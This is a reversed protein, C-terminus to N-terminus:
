SRWTRVKRRGFTISVFGIGGAAILTQLVAFWVWSRDLMWLMLGLVLCGTLWFLLLEKWLGRKMEQKRGEVFAEFQQLDPVNPAHTADFRNVAEKFQDDFWQQDYDEEKPKKM